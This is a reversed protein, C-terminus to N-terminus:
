RAIGFGAAKLRNGACYAMVVSAWGLAGSGGILDAAVGVAVVLLGLGCAEVIRGSPIQFDPVTRGTAYAGLAMAIATAAVVAGPARLVAVIALFAYAAGMMAQLSRVSVLQPM